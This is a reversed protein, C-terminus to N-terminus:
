MKTHYEYYITFLKKRTRAEQSAFEIYIKKIATFLRCSPTTTLAEEDCETSGSNM